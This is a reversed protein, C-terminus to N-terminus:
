DGNDSRRVQLNEFRAQLESNLQDVLEQLKTPDQEDRVAEALQRWDDSVISRMWDEKMGNRDHQAFSSRDSAVIKQLRLM